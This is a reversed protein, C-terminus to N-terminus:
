DGEGERVKKKLRAGVVSSRVAGLFAGSGEGSIGGLVGTCSFKGKRSDNTKIVRYLFWLSDRGM